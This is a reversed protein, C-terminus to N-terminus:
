GNTFDAWEPGRVFIVHVAGNGGVPHINQFSRVSM